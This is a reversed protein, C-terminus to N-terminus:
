VIGYGCSRCDLSDKQLLTPGPQVDTCSRVQVELWSFARDLEFKDFLALRHSRARARHAHPDGSQLALRMQPQLERLTLAVEIGGLKPMNVDLLAIQPRQQLGLQIAEAGDAAELVASVAARERAGAALFSRTRVDDDALLLQVRAVHEHGNVDSLGVVRGM